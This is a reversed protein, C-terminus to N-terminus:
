ASIGPQSVASIAQAVALAQRHAAVDHVRFLRVRQRAHAVTVALSGPLRDEARPADSVAGIFSKRSAGSLLPRGLRDQMEGSRAILEYNQEVTKGFGLGPDIVIADNPVGADLAAQLREGLQAIVTEVVDSEIPPTDYQDSFRDAEPPRVRHMLVLGARRRAALDLIAPDEVGASVDNIVAAGANIAADAVASRTTDISILSDSRQQMIADVVPRTRQIQEDDSVRKAGPRTSEGGIDILDAGADLMELARTVAADVSDYRGGDSFSDPTVNLIGMIRPADLTIGGHRGIAWTYQASDDKMRKSNM